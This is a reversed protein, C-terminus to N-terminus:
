PLDYARSDDAIIAAAPKITLEGTIRTNPKAPIIMLFALHESRSLYMRKPITVQMNVAM